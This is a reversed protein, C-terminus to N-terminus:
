LQSIILISEYFSYQNKEIKYKEIFSGLISQKNEKISLNQNSHLEIHFLELHNNYSKLDKSSLHSAKYEIAFALIIKSIIGIQENLKKSIEHKIDFINKRFESFFYHLVSLAYIIHRFNNGTSKSVEELLDINESLFNQFEPFSSFKNTIIEQITSKTNVSYEITVGIIKEKLSKYDADNQMLVDQNSILLIKVKEDLLS